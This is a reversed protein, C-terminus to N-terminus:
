LGKRHLSFVSRVAVAKDVEGGDFAHEKLEDVHVAEAIPPNEEIAFIRVLRIESGVIRLVCRRPNDVALVQLRDARQVLLEHLRNNGGVDRHFAALLGLAEEDEDATADDALDDQEDM